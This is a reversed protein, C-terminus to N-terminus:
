SIQQRGTASTHPWEACRKAAMLALVSGYHRVHSASQPLVPRLVFTGCLDGGFRRVCNCVTGCFNACGREHTVSLVRGWVSVEVSGSACVVENRPRLNVHDPAKQDSVHLLRTTHLKMAWTNTRSEAEHHQALIVVNTQARHRLEAAIRRVNTRSDIGTCFTTCVILLVKHLCWSSFSLEAYSEVSVGCVIGFLEVCIEVDVRM